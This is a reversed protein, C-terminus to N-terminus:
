CCIFSTASFRFSSTCSPPPFPVAVQACASPAQCPTAAGAWVRPEAVRLLEGTAPAQGGGEAGDWSLARPSPPWAGAGPLEGGWGAWAGCDVGCVQGQELAM